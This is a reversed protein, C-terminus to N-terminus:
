SREGGTAGMTEVSFVIHASSEAQGAAIEGADTLEVGDTRFRFSPHLHPIEVWRMEFAGTPEDVRTVLAREPALGGQVVLLVDGVRVDSCDSRVVFRRPTLM